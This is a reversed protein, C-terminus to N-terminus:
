LSSRSRGWYGGARAESERLDRENEERARIPAQRAEEEKRKQEDWQRANQERVKADSWAMSRAREYTRRQEAEDRKKWEAYEKEEAAKKEALVRELDKKKALLSLKEQYLPRGKDRTMKPSELLATIEDIRKSVEALQDEPTLQKTQTPKKSSFPWQAQKEFHEAMKLLNEIKSSAIVDDPGVQDREKIRGSKMANIEEELGQLRKMYTKHESVPASRMDSILEEKDALLRRLYSGNGVTEYVERMDTPSLSPLGEYIGKKALRMAELSSLLIDKTPGSGWEGEVDPNEEFEPLEKQLDQNNSLEQRLKDRVLQAKHSSRHGLEDMVGRWITMNSENLARMGMELLEDNKRSFLPRAHPKEPVVDPVADPTEEPTEIEPFLDEFKLAPQANKTIYRAALLLNRASKSLM